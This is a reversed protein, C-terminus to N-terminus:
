RDWVLAWRNHSYPPYGGPTCLLEEILHYKGNISKLIHYNPNFNKHM